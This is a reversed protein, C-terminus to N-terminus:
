GRCRQLRYSQWFTVNSLTRFLNSGKWHVVDVADLSVTDAVGADLTEKQSAPLQLNYRDIIHM